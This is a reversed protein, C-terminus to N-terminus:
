ADQMEQLLKRVPAFSKRHHVTVGHAALGSIHEPTGYGANNAWGFHPFQEHLECMIRDRTVKAIISAAAISVSIADGKVVTQVKGHWEIPQNGDILIAQPERPMATVARKMALKTAQLINLADIEEVAAIGVGVVASAHIADFLQERKPLSLKKSDNIGKPIHSGTFMVAAAVVPGAWPGRGAEDVGATPLGLSQELAYDPLKKSM